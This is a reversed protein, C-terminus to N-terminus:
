EEFGYDLSPSYYYGPWEEEEDEPEQMLELMADIRQLRQRECEEKLEYYAGEFLLKPENIEPCYASAWMIHCKATHWYHAPDLKDWATLLIEHLTYGEEENEVIPFFSHIQIGVDPHHFEINFKPLDSEVIKIISM